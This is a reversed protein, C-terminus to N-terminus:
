PPATFYSCRASCLYVCVGGLWKQLITSLPSVLYSPSLCDFLLITYAASHLVFVVIFRRLRHRSNQICGFTETFSITAIDGLALTPSLSVTVVVTCRQIADKPWLNLPNQNHINKASQTRLIHWPWWRADLTVNQIPVLDLKLTGPMKSILDRLQKYSIKLPSSPQREHSIKKKSQSVM